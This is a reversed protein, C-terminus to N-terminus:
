NLVDFKELIQKLPMYKLVKINDNIANLVYLQDIRVGNVDDLDTKMVHFLSCHVNNCWEDFELECM